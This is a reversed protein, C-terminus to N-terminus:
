SVKGLVLGLLAMRMLVGYYPQKFYVANPLADVEFGIEDVRPLPHMLVMSEKGKKMLNIDFKYSGRVKEYESEEVFREKQIRTAYIVDAKDIISDLDEYESYKIKADDLSKLVESRVKLLTPSVFFLEVDYLSLAYALSKVTRGYKLDGALAIKLGDIEGVENKITLIDLLAQTPHEKTGSGGCIIPINAVESALKSSGELKHRIVIVDCYSEICKISDSINEGKAASSWTPDSFGIVNGGLKLMASEFSLRTRTSPEYFLSSMIEGNLPRPTGKGLYLDKMGNAVKCIYDVEERTFDKISVIDRGKFSHSM